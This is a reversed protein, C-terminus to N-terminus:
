LIPCQIDGAMPRSQVLGDCTGVMHVIQKERWPAQVSAPLRHGAWWRQTKCTRLSDWPDGGTVGNRGCLDGRHCSYGWESTVSLMSCAFQVFKRANSDRRNM